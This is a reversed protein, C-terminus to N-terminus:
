GFFKNRARWLFRNKPIREYLEHCKYGELLTFFFTFRAHPKKVNSLKRISETKLEIKNWTDEKNELCQWLSWFKGFIKQLEKSLEEIFALRETEQNFINVEARAFVYFSTFRFKEWESFKLVRELEINITKM